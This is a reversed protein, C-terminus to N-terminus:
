RGAWGLAPMGAVGIGDLLLSSSMRLRARSVGGRGIGRGCGARSWQSRGLLFGELGPLADRSCVLGILPPMRNYLSALRTSPSFPHQELAQMIGISNEKYNSLTSGQLFYSEFRGIGIGIVHMYRLISKHRPGEMQDHDGKHEVELSLTVEDELYICFAVYAVYSCSLYLLRLYRLYDEVRIYGSM